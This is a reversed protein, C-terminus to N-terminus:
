LISLQYELPDQSVVIIKWFQERDVIELSSTQSCSTGAAPWSASVGSSRTDLHSCWPIDSGHVTRGQISWVDCQSIRPEETTINQLLVSLYQFYIALNEVSSLDLSCIEPLKRHGVVGRRKSARGLSWQWRSPHRAVPGLLGPFQMSSQSRRWWPDFIAQNQPHCNHM